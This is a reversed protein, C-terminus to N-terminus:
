ALEVAAAEFTSEESAQVTGTSYWRYVWTGPLTVDIDVHFAGVSDRVVGGGAWTVTTVAGKPTRYKCTVTSPDTLVDSANKFVGSVRVLDGVSPTTSTTM